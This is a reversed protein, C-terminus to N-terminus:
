SCLTTHSVSVDSFRTFKEQFFAKITGTKGGRQKRTLIETINPFDTNENYLVDRYMFIVIDSDYEIDGSERLDLLMPRKDSRAECGRNLSSILVVPIELEKSLRKLDRSFSGVESSRTDYEKSTRILQAYDIIILDLGTAAQITSRSCIGQIDHTKADIYLTELARVQNLYYLFDKMNEGLKGSQILTGDIKAESSVLRTVVEQGPMELSFFLINKGQKANFLAMQLALSTKAMGPRGGIVYLKSPWLGGALQSDLSKLSTTLPVESGAMKREVADFLESAFTSVPEPKDIVNSCTIERIITSAAGLAEDPELDNKFALEAIKASSDILIRNVSCRKVVNAYHVGHLSSPTFNMLGTLINAGGIFELKGLKEIEDVLVLLDLAKGAKRINVMTQYINAFRECSFDASSLIEQIFILIEPDILISGLVAQEADLNIPMANDINQDQYTSSPDVYAIIKQGNGNFSKM